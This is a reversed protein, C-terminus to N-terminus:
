KDNQEAGGDLADLERVIRALKDRGRKRILNVYTPTVKFLAAIEASPRGTLAQEFIQFTKVAMTKRLEELAIGRLFNRWKERLLADLIEDPPEVEAAPVAPVNEGSRRRRLIDYVCGKVIRNFFTRFRAISADYRFGEGIRRCFRCMVEQVLDDCESESLGKFAGVDRVVPRYASFFEEWARDDRRCLRDLLTSRTTPYRM